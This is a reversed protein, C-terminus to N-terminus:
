RNGVTPLWSCIHKGKWNNVTSYDVVQISNGDSTPVTFQMKTTPLTTAVPTLEVIGDRAQISVPKNYDPDINEDRVLVIPGRILAIFNNGAPNSGHPAPVVHCSMDMTLNITDGSSWLRNLEAYTGPVAQVTTGNVTLKTVNSWAPIRLRITFSEPKELTVNLAIDGTVPYEAKIEMVANQGGPTTVSATGSNYLNVVPGTKSNMVAVYPLYALGMPGNLNCCTVYVGDIKGGWGMPNTKVGNLKNVYSFGDGEPKMAGILGNYAYKEIADIASPDGTLRCVQSCLKLWTVGACTEMGRNINPNTQELATYDWAEGAVNPHYPQDGGGNGVITIEKEGINHFLNLVSQKYYDNGTVRYYEMVGEFLSMMEYAKPYPGGIKEPDTNQYSQDIVNYGKAGGEKVIYSAFDLYRQYGTLKYLRVIPELITSSEIHNPSWGEDTIGVKPPSGIQAITCDAEDIMAQLVAPDQEVQEYYGDLGLLVYKREWLDGKNGGPQKPIDSCSISGNARKTTLLDAVTKQLIAKLGPDQTYRYFMAGSRVAKGWMEGEAFFQRGMRFMQVFAAYPVVGKNWHILSNQLYDELYGHFQVAKSPLPTFQDEIAATPPHM